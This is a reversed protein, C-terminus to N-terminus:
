WELRVSFQIIRPDNTQQSLDQLGTTANPRPDNPHNFFNFFDSTFRMRVRETFDFYKFISLDQNWSRPGLYFNRPNWSLMDTVPTERITGDALQQPLRNDLGAGLPRLIRQSRDVPVLAQLKALDVNTASSPNFDGRFWLRQHRGFIDLTLRQDASLTPDGFLYDNASISSWNGSQWTGIWALQWGGVVQNLANSVGSGYRKGRGFPLEYIGNWRIRHPPVLSSNTYGFHLRQSRSLNPEGLILINEPVAYGQSGTSNISSSGYDFGGTDNTTMAHIYTYFWQFALGNSFRREVNAQISSSNLFGNHEIPAQCCGSDWNPNVRRADSVAQDGSTALGTRAQYNWQSEPDNWRWRQELNYGHTGIYSLRLATNRMLEREITFTWNMMTDDAWHHVDWPMLAQSTSSISNAPHDVDVVAKGIYDNPGPAHSISYFPVAGNLNGYDTQFRLNLPPNTRASQLIQSLPMPWYYMGFGGRVVWKDTVRYAVSFRPSFDKWNPPVLAGPFHAQDATVWTMGRIKWSQLVAPPIGPISEMTTNHPTIVQMGPYNTIDLNVLRDYKETYPTWADWRLGYDVTLRPTLKFTDNFYLGLEKQQFYFYGRNYQNSLYSPIGLLMTGFGSGTFSVQQQSAPDFQGTWDPGWYHSGMAQQLERVNNYEQRGKFGFKLTHKGKIWTVNNEIQFATLHQDGRNDGDWCGYYMLSYGSSDGTCLTPWGTAGFPNPLGLKNAWNTNDGLTGSSNNSRHASAQFENLFTPTFVHNWRAFTSYVSANQRGSGGCDKCSLPPYGYRGGALSNADIAATFRASLTDKESFVQDGKITYTHRDDPSAYYTQFNPGLWPNDGANPGTPLPSVLTQMLKAFQSIRDAPILNGAFPTRTGDAKTTLPDYLTFVDGSADTLNSLDGGWMAPTPVGARAFQDQRQKLGEWDFFWFTKNKGNYIKPLWVPGGAWGGYENRILKASTNGDQRQRARLGAANSRYTEFLAGHIQNTGSRTVLEVTAPRSFQAGSGATEIRFEQVTDLGPQVRSIGGGFRDVYSIGDFLMETSGVKMGNVRPNGGGEVGPTLDFLNTIQRGNLPLNHIRLADKTDSVQAGQTTVVPAAGTVEVTAELSGVELAPDIVVTQGAQITLTSEWKKFGSSEVVLTHPGIPVAGFYYIGSANTDTSRAVGTENHTLTVKANPIVAKSADQVTGHAVGLGTQAALPLVVFVLLLLFLKRTYILYTHLSTEVGKAAPIISTPDVGQFDAIITKEEDKVM